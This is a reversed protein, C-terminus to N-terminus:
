MNHIVNERDQCRTENQMLVGQSLTDGDGRGPVSPRPPDPSNVVPTDM